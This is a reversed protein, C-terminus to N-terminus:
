HSHNHEGNQTTGYGRLQDYLQSQHETLLSKQKLHANLHVYRIKAQLIGIESLLMKLSDPTILSRSFERDLEQEKAVFQEGLIVAQAKMDDFIAQTQQAQQETLNLENALDLVHKPGPFHNLEAAKAYGLGKGKFYGVVEQHSLAKIDRMEQGVYPSGSNAFAVFATTNLIVGFILNKM